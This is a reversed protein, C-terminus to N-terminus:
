IRIVTDLAKFIFAMQIFKRSKPIELLLLDLQELSSPMNPFFHNSNWRNIPTSQIASHEKQNYDEILFYRLKEEFNQFDILHNQQM